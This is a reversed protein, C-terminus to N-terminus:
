SARDAALHRRRSITILGLGSMVVVVAAGLQTGTDTGTAPLTSGIPAEVVVATPPLPAESAVAVTTTPAPVPAESAVATTTTEPPLPVESAVSTTTAAPATTTTTLAPPATTTTAHVTTTTTTAHVTSSTSPTTCHLQTGHFSTDYKTPDGTHLNADLVVLWVHDVSSDWPFNRSLTEGFPIVHTVGDITVTVHNNGSPGEYNTLGITLGDTCSASVDPTHASAGGATAAIGLGALGVSILALRVTMRARRGAALQQAM